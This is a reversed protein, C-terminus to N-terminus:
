GALLIGERILDGSYGYINGGASFGPLDLPSRWKSDTEEQESIKRSKNICSNVASPAAM